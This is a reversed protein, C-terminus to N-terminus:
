EQGASQSIQRLNKYTWVLGKETIDFLNTTKVELIRLLQNVKKM